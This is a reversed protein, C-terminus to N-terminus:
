TNRALFESFRRDYDDAYSRPAAPPVAARRASPDPQPKRVQPKAPEAHSEGGVANAEALDRDFHRLISRMASIDDSDYARAIAEAMVPDYFEGHADTIATAWASFDDSTVKEQWQPDIRTLEAVAKEHEREAALQQVTLELEQNRKLVPELKASVLGEIEAAEEPLSELFKRGQEPKAPTAAPTQSPQQASRLKKLEAETRTLARQVPLVQNRYRKAEIEIQERAQRQADRDAVIKDIEARAAEDLNSYGPFLEEANKAAESDAAVAKPEEPQVPEAQPQDKTPKAAEDAALMADFRAEFDDSM